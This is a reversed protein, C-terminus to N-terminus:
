KPYPERFICLATVAVHTLALAIAIPAKGRSLKQFQKFGQSTLEGAAADGGEKIGAPGNAKPRNAELADAAAQRAETADPADEGTTAGGREQLPAAAADAM